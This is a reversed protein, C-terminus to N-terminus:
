NAARIPYAIAAVGGYAIPGTGGGCRHHRGPAALVAERERRRAGSASKAGVSAVRSEEDSSL